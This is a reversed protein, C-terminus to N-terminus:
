FNKLYVKTGSKASARAAEVFITKSVGREVSAAYPTQNLLSDIFANAQREFAVADPVPKIDLIQHSSTHLVIRNPREIRMYGNEGIFTMACDFGGVIGKGVSYESLLMGNTGNEYEVTLCAGNETKWGYSYNLVAYVSTAHTNMLWEILDYDHVALEHMCGSKQMWTKWGEPPCPQSKVESVAYIKGLDGILEKAKLFVEEYRMKFGIGVSLAKERCLAEINRAEEINITLPKECLVHVGQRLLDMVVDYHAMAPTAVAAVDIKEPVESLNTYPKGGYAEALAVAASTNTDILACLNTNPCNAFANAHMKGIPGCGIVVANLM